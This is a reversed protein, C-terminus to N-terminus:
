GPRPLDALSGAELVQTSRASGIDRKVVRQGPAERSFVRSQEHLPKLRGHEDIFDFVRGLQEGEDLHGDVSDASGSLEPERTRLLEM